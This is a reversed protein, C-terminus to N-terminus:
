RASGFTAQTPPEHTAGRSATAAPSQGRDLPEGGCGRLEFPALTQGSLHKLHRRCPTRDTKMFFNAIAASASPM